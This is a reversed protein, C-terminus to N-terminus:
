KIPYITGCPNRKHKEIGRITTMSNKPNQWIRFCNRRYKASPKYLEVYGEAVWWGLPWSLDWNMNGTKNSTNCIMTQSTSTSIGFTGLAVTRTTSWRNILHAPIVIISLDKFDEIGLFIADFHVFVIFLPSNYKKPSKNGMKKPPNKELKRIFLDTNPSVEM